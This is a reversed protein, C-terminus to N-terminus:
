NQKFGAYSGPVTGPLTEIMIGFVKAASTSCVQLSGVNGLHTPTEAWGDTTHFTYSGSPGLTKGFQDVVAGAQNFYKVTLVAQQSTSQNQILAHSFQGGPNRHAAPFLLCSAADTDNLADYSYIGFPTTEITVALLQRGSTSEVKASGVIGLHTPTEPWGDTAHFTYSGKAAIEKTFQDVQSGSQDYYTVRVVNPNNDDLNKVLIHSFQGGPNRHVAPMYLVTAAQSPSFGRYSYTEDFQSEIVSAAIRQGSVSTARASGVCNTSCTVITRLDHHVASSPPITELRTALVAGAQSYYTIAVTAQVSPDTNQYGVLSYQLSAWHISPLIQDTDGQNTGEYIDHSTSGANIVVAVIQRDSSVVMSGLFSPGLEAYDSAHFTKSGGPALQDDLSKKLTGNDAYYEVHLAATIDEMNKVLTHSTRPAIASPTVEDAATSSVPATANQAAVLSYMLLAALIVLGIVVVLRKM